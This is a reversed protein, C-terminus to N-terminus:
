GKPHKLDAGGAGRTRPVAARLPPSRAAEQEPQETLGGRCGVPWPHEGQRAVNPAPSPGLLALQQEVVM